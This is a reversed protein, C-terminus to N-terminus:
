KDSFKCKMRIHRKKLKSIKIEHKEKWWFVLFVTFKRTSAGVSKKERITCFGDYKPNKFCKNKEGCSQETWFGYWIIELLGLLLLLLGCFVLLSRFIFIELTLPISIPQNKETKIKTQRKGWDGCYKRFRFLEDLFKRFYHRFNKLFYKFCDFM